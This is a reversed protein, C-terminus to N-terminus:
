ETAGEDGRTRWVFLMAFVLLILFIILSFASAYGYRYFDVGTRYVNSVLIDTKNGPGGGTVLYIVNVLNFTWVVSLTIAPVLVPRLMPLTIHRFKNWGTGGDCDAAEYLEYPISQLGGLCIMMMFPFGLWVNVLIVAAFAWTPHSLWPVPSIHLQKLVLNITGFDHQFMTKWSLAAIYQPIAWPLILFLRFIAKGPLKRNLLIALWMGIAVSFVVCSVTWVLSRFMLVYFDLDTIVNYFNRFWIFKVTWFNTLSMNTFALWVGYALPYIVFVAMLALAPMTYAYPNWPKAGPLLGPSVAPERAM